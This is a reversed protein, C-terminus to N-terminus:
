VRNPLGKAVYYDNLWTTIANAEILRATIVSQPDNPNSARLDLHHAGEPILVAIISPNGTINSTVGGGSWPDLGGNSFVINSAASLDQVGYQLQVMNPRPTTAFQQQCSEITAALNWPANWFLDNPMGYQGIPMVMEMCSQVNWGNGALAPPMLSSMNFCQGAQGTYNYFIQVRACSASRTPAHLYPTCACARRVLACVCTVPSSLACTRQRHRQCHCAAAPLCACQCLYLLRCGQQHAM